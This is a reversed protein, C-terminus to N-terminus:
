GGIRKIRRAEGRLISPMLEGRRDDDEVRLGRSQAFGRTWAVSGLSTVDPVVMEVRGRTARHHRLGKTSREEHPPIYEEPVSAQYYAIGLM